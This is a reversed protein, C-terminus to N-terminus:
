ILEESRYVENMLIVHPFSICAIFIFFIAWSSQEQFPYVSSQFLLFGLMFIWAAAHFPLSHLWMRSNSIRLHKRIDQWGTLSHQGIFYLGFSMILPLHSSLFLWFVTLAFSSNKRFLAVALWLLMLWNPCALPLQLNVMLALIQNTEAVHTGLIYMLVFAGWLISMWKPLLWRKGDAQGFHWASYILFFMLALSSQMYWLLGMCSALFLYKFVFVPTIKSNWKGSELLHDVAGHPIGVTVMGLVLLGYALYNQATSQNGLVMLIITIFTLVLPRFWPLYVGRKFATQIFIGWPLNKFISLDTVVDTRQDLFNLVKHIAVKELLAEFIPKGEKPNNKLIDLLLGDYFSFRGKTVEAYSKNFGDIPENNKIADVICRAQYYMSRFAYGTSPKIQYNRAGITVVGPMETTDIGANSMPICGIEIDQITYKGFHQRIYGDLIKESTEKDIIGAGFRTVEVLATRQSFPLVYVFQTSDNQEISFDMFRFAMSNEICDVTEIMWGVFSQFIHIDGRQSLKYEPPRSDFVYKARLMRGNLIVYPGDKDTRVEDVYGMIKQWQYLTVLEHIHNYLDISSVHNYHFPNLSQIKENPLLVQDWRYSILEKLDACIPEEEDAWFCFTKDRKGKNDPDILLIKRHQCCNNQHLQLLLLSASAGTGCFIYDYEQMCRSDEPTYFVEQM